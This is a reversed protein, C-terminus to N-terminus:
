KKDDPRAKDTKKNNFKKMAEAYGPPATGAGASQPDGKSGDGRHELKSTAEGVNVRPGPPEPNPGRKAQEDRQQKEQKVVEEFGKLFREYDEPTYGLQKLLDKNDKNKQFKELQLESPLKGFDENGKLPTGSPDTTNGPGGRGVAETTDGDGRPNRIKMKEALDKLNKMAEEAKLPDGSKLDDMQKQLELADRMLDQQAKSAAKPDGHKMADATKQMQYQLGKALDKGLETDSFKKEAGQQKAPNNAAMDKALDKLQQKEDPNLDKKPQQANVQKQLDDLKKEAAARKAPDDSKLDNMLQEAEQRADKGVM